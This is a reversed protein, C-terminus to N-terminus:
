IRFGLQLDIFFGNRFVKKSISNRDRSSSKKNGGEPLVETNPIEEGIKRSKTDYTFPVLQGTQAAFFFMRSPSQLQTGIGVIAGSIYGEYEWSDTEHTIYFM